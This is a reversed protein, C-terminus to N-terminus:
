KNNENEKEKNMKNALYTVRKSANVLKDTLVKGEIAISKLEDEDVLRICARHVIDNRNDKWERIAPVLDKEVKKSIIPHGKGIQHEISNLKNSLLKGSDYANKCVGSHSLISSTRDEILAYEIMCAEFYFGAALAKKLKTKLISYNDRKQENTVM